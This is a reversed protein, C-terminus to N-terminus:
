QEYQSPQLHYGPLDVLGGLDVAGRRPLAEHPDRQRQQRRRDEDGQDEGREVRQSYEVQREDQRLALVPRRGQRRNRLLREGGVPDVPQAGGHRHQGEDDHHDNGERVDAEDAAVKSSQRLVLRHFSSG